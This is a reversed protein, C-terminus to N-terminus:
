PVVPRAPGDSGRLCLAAVGYCFVGVWFATTISSFVAITVSLVTALVSTAGNVGWLWPTLEPTRSAVWGMGVPFAMGMFLGAPALMAVAVVIRLGTPSGEFARIAPPTLLGFVTLVGVLAYLRARAGGATIEPTVTFSGLGASLLLTLLVVLLGYTPHGLFIILRQMQSVEVLMFGLGIAAFFALRSTSGYLSRVGARAVLPVIIFLITLLLVVLTLTTLVAVAKVNHQESEDDAGRFGTRLLDGFRMQLFFFPTADTPAVVNLRLRDSVAEPDGGDALEEMIPDMASRPSLVIEFDMRDCITELQDLDADSFPARGLLMTGVGEPHTHPSTPGLTRVIIIHDRPDSIGVEKLSAAALSVLRYVEAPRSEWYWRSVTLIGEPTLRKLFTTWAEVTYVANETLVFAGAATAAYTDILSIQIIDFPDGPRAAYSRAEDNVLDVRPHRDLHGTYDGYPGVLAKLIEENIEVATVSKQDFTLASQVDRGGGAGVVLVDAESRLWHALNVIDFKLYDRTSPEDEWRSLVTAATSDITLWLFRVRTDPTRRSLGWGFPKAPADPDGFVRIRSFSNWKEMLTFFEARGRSQDIRFWARQSQALWTNAGALVALVLCCVLAVTRVRGDSFALAGMGAVAGVALVASPGDMVKLFAVLLVCGAAAGALDAGYLKGVQRSYRTLVLCVVIGSLFFPLSLVLFFAAVSAIGRISPSFEPPNNAHVAFSVVITSSFGLASVALSRPLTQLPFREPRLYVFVAGATMGFMAVSIAVFSFHYWMTVSFIRTLLVEYMLTAVTTFFLGAYVGSGAHPSKM